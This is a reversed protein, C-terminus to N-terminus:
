AGPFEGRLRCLRSVRNGKPKEDDKKEARRTFLFRNKLTGFSDM